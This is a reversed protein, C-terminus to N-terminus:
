ARVLFRCRVKVVLYVLGLSGDDESRKLLIVAAVRLGRPLKANMWIVEM